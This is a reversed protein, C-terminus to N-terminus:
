FIKAKKYNYKLPLTDFFVRVKESIVVINNFTKMVLVLIFFTVIM